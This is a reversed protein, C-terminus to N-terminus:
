SSVELIVGPYGSSYVSYLQAFSGLVLIAGVSLDTYGCAFLFCFGLRRIDAM